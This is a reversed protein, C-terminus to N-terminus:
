FMCNDIKRSLSCYMRRTTQCRQKAPAMRVTDELSTSLTVDPPNRTLLSRPSMNQPERPLIMKPTLRDVCFLNEHRFTKHTHCRIIEAWMVVCVCLHVCEYASSCSESECACLCVWTHVWVMCVASMCLFWVLVCVCLHVCVCVCMCVCVCQCCM